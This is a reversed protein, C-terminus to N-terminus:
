DLLPMKEIRLLSYIGNIKADAMDGRVSIPSIDWREDKLYKELKKITTYDLDPIVCITMGLEPHPKQSWATVVYVDKM